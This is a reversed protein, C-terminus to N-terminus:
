APSCSYKAVIYIIRFTETDHLKILIAFGNGDLLFRLLWLAIVTDCTKIEIIVAHYLIRLIELWTGSALQLDGVQVTDIQLVSVQIYLKQSLSKGPKIGTCM